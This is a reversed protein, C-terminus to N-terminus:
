MNRLDYLPDKRVTKVFERYDRVVEAPDGINQMVGKEIWMARSGMKIVNELNHTAIIVARASELIQNVKQRSKERFEEDGANIVEDMVLIDPEVATAVAFALRAKMGASYYKIPANIYHGLQSFEIISPLLEKSQERSLGMFTLSLLINDTGSLIPRFGLGMSLFANIGGNIELHGTNPLLTQALVRLLTTKGAGNRGIVFFIEGPKVNFSIDRLAWIYRQKGNKVASFLRQKLSPRKMGYNKFKVGIDIAMIPDM